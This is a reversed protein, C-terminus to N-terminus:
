ADFRRPPDLTWGIICDRIAHTVVWTGNVRFCDGERAEIVFAKMRGQLGTGAAKAVAEKAVWGRTVGMGPPEGELFVREAANFVLDLFSEDREEVQEIDIGVPRDAVIAAALNGKHSISLHLGEPVSDTVNARIAPAGTPLTEIRVEQPYVDILGLDDRLHNLVADKGAVRGNLWERRRRPPQAEYDAREAETLYRRNIYDRLIATDYRDEFLAVNPPIKRSVGQRSLRRSAEWFVKDMQYRRTRWGDFAVVLRGGSDRLQHDSVCNLADLEAIRVRADLREGPVPDPGFFRIADVGVPMALCNEPQEMVWYGALQGMNDLLAGKGATVILEGDIGNEGIGRFGAVGRYAPGHFMWQDQYLSVSDERTPRPKVLPASPALDAAPWSDAVEVRAKFFGLIEAEIVGDPGTELSIEITTPRAVNLWKYAQIGSVATVKIGPLAEEVAERVLMVEMTLPVTPCRDEAIPWGPRQPYLEHDRVTPITSEIDLVRTFKRSLRPAPGPMAPGPPARHTQWLGLVERGAAEIDALTERILSGVPDSPDVAPLAVMRGPPDQRFAPDLPERLRTLPVGLRLRITSRSPKPTAGNLLRLDIGAGEVWLAASLTQLQHLGPREEHNATVALHPRGSLTDGIFGSLAGTGVEVFVRFGEGYLAETLARFRVPELLHEVALKRKSALDTPFPTASTASWIPIAPEALAATEFFDRYPPLHDAFLPSHFGSVIPLIQHFIRRDKLRGAVTEVAKRHGCAIVQHPCNDHSLAIGDLGAMAEVMSEESCSAAIFLADPFAVGDLDVGAMARDSEAQALMGGCLMASWEGISHGALADARLGLDTLREYLYRNFGMLGAVVRALSQGPDLAECHPPLPKGFTAALGEARPRFRTGVGPFVFALKGGATLLGTPSFWIQQRGAWPKGSEVVKRATALRKPDPAIVALRCPGAPVPYPAGADFQALLDAPTEAALMLVPPLTEIAPVMGAGTEPDEPVGRLVLHANIGGFGFANIAGVRSERADRWSEGSGIVRFRTDALRPNPVDCHLTPPLIGHHIALATKILSAMGSAPMAHGIMSKVSGVVPRAGEGEFPGFFHGLTELEVSDGTPTATGHAELLGIARREFSLNTWARELALRQGAAAPAVISGGRGDSASGAGEIVAYIRDGDARADDLRKLIAVGIGEGALTGDAGAALPRVIGRRSFAGLQCFTAWITLDHTLHAGGVVMMDADGHRLAACAQEVAILSSACAADITFAPGHLDLRNALRSAILNPIGGAAVDPGYYSFERKLRTRVDALAAPSLDPFLDSLTQLIQPLLRVHQELRLVGAGIYNGRGLIVGTRERPFPRDLYGADRLADYGIKLTLLQDPEIVDAAKPVIGFAIPDFDALQDVFGGRRCYFRDVVASNPDYFEPDWRGPPVEGIADVGTVINRWFTELDRAGPFLCAMGVIAVGM